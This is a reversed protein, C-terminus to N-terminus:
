FEDAQPEDAITFKLNKIYKRLIDLDTLKLIGPAMISMPWHTYIKGAIDLYSEPMNNLEVDVPIDSLIAAFLAPICGQGEAKLSINKVGCSKLLELTMLIDKVKGGLYPKDLMVGLSNYHYDFLYQGFFNRNGPECSDPRLEGIGRIDLGYVNEEQQIIDSQLLEKDSDLHPIYLIAKEAAPIHYYIGERYFKLVSMVLEKETELGFRSNEGSYRLSRVYPIEIKDLKLINALKKRMEDLTFDRCKSRNKQALEIIFDHLKRYEPMYFVEGQPTCFTEEPTLLQLSEDEVIDKKDFIVENFFNYMATRNAQHYGHSDPGIFLRINEEKGLLSYIHKVDEYAEVTGRPDFFDNKQGLILTPRPAQAIIFDAMDLGYKLAAPPMQEIDAPLENEVERKWTTIYCSPAAVCTRAELANVFTTMTGGGSNGTIGIRDPDVEPLTLLYDIGRIADWARWTGLFDDSLHLQKGQMNHAITCYTPVNKVELLQHREGQNVPDIVLVVFGQAALNICVTQYSIAAKGEEAHGCLVLAAPCKNANQPLYLLGTVPYNPRSEYIVNRITIDNVTKENTIRANLPTKRKPLAFSAEIKKRVEAVYQLAQKRTKISKLRKKRETYVKKVEKLYYEQVSNRFM